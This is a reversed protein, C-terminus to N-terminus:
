VLWRRPLEKIDLVLVCALLADTLEIVMRGIIRHLDISDHAPDRRSFVSAAVAAAVSGRGKRVNGGDLGCGIGRLSRIDSSQPDRVIVSRLSADKETEQM